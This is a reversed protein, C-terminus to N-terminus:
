ARTTQPARALMRRVDAPAVRVLRGIKRAPLEGTEIKRYVTLRSVGLFEAVEDPTVLAEGLRTSKGTM